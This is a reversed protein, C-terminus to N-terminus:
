PCQCCQYSSSVGASARAAACSTAHQATTSDTCGQGGGAFDMTGATCIDVGGSNCAVGTSGDLSCRYQKLCFCPGPPCGMCTGFAEGCCPVCNSPGLGSAGGGGLTPFGGGVCGGSGTTVTTSAAAAPTPVAVSVMVAASAALFRRRPLGEASAVLGGQALQQLIGLLRKQGLGLRAAAVETSTVGDCARYVETAEGSLLHVRASQSDYLMLEHSLEQELLLDSRVPMTKM